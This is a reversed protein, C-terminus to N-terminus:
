VAMLVYVSLFPLEEVRTVGGCTARCAEDLASQLRVVYHGQCRFLYLGAM